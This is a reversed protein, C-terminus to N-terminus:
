AQLPSMSQPDLEKIEELIENEELGEKEEVKEFLGLQGGRISGGLKSQAKELKSLVRQAVRLVKEPVGALKAVQIGYSHSAAGPIFKRLFVIKGSDEKVFVNYNKVRRKSIALQALEHYHTAFLTRCGLDHLFEAVAWAISMGDFTSTGRGIEDLIVMSRSTAHRIIYATEVMEVMFTSQGRALSDSAGVRTFIKDVIGVKAEKAPVFSGMQAMLVILAVQRILTSKGAMNPGTIILFQNEELDLKIDNPVFREGLDMREVVPHRSEKLAIIGTDSIQPKIYNYKDAVESLSSLVDLEAILSATRRVRDSENAVRKRIEEFLEKEIEVIRDEAGLIKEEYEKLQPTIFREANILTQKRIYTDPVLHLNPKTVEIYYGFVRNYGIKLSNIRNSEKEKAELEAIWKKGDRKILRLEDLEMSFGDRIIGGERSSLPPEAVLAKELLGRVDNLDDLGLDIELIFPATFDKLVRKIDSIFYSSDRLAGLDRPKASNTSIRAILREIDSIEKLITRLKRRLGPKGKLEEVADLREGIKRSDVLPYNIWQKLLRGGMATLTEDLVWLLSGRKSEGRITRLLELNRKTSEDVLLYDATEYYTPADLPPMDEIQTERLYHVVAGCAIILGPHDELGFAELTQSSLMDKLIEKARDLEWVWSDFRTILPNWTRSFFSVLEESQHFEEPLLVEKPELNSLEETLDDLTSFSATKFQGTSIDTYALGYTKGDFYLSALFNNSKSDLKEPDLIVGPTLIKTVRREVIGKALKPDEVQECIAVKHGHELLKALYPEVSHYPVGCLPVSNKESKNRSTLAIGLIKSAINADEFFMEYFDGLRFFLITDPYERKIKMYQRIMPTDTSM